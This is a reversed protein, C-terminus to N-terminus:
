SKLYHRSVGVSRTNAVAGPKKITLKFGIIAGLSSLWDGLENILTELLAYQTQEIRETIQEALWAYSLTSAVDDNGAAETFRTEISLDIELVQEIRQEWEYVGIRAKVKLGELFIFDTVM